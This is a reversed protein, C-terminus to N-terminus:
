KSSSDLHRTIKVESGHRSLNEIKPHNFLVMNSGPSRIGPSSNSHLAFIPWWDMSIKLLQQTSLDGGHFDRDNHSPHGYWLYWRTSTSQIWHHEWEKGIGFFMMDSPDFPRPEAKTESSTTTFCTLCSLRILKVIYIYVTYIYLTEM